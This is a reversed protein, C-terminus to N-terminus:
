QVVNAGAATSQHSRKHRRIWFLMLGLFGLPMLSLLALSLLYANRVESSTTAFCRPCAFGSAPLWATAAIIVWLLWFRKRQM